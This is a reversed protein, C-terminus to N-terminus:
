VNFLPKKHIFYKLISQKSPSPIFLQINTSNHRSASNLEFSAPIVYFSATNVGSNRSNISFFRYDTSQIGQSTYTFCLYVENIYCNRHVFMSFALEEKAFSSPKIFLQAFYFFSRNTYPRKEPKM